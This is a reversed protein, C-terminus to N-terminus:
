LFGKQDSIYISIGNPLCNNFQLINEDENDPSDEWPVPWSCEDDTDKFAVDFWTIDHYQCLRELIDPSRYVEDNLTITTTYPVFDFNCIPWKSQEIGLEKIYKRDIYCQQMNEFTITVSEILSLDFYNM